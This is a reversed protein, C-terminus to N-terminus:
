LDALYWTETLLVTVSAVQVKVTGLHTQVMPVKRQVLPTTPEGRGFSQRRWLLLRLGCIRRQRSPIVFKSLFQVQPSPFRRSHNRRLEMSKSLLHWRLNGSTQVPSQLELSPTRLLATSICWIWWTPKEFHLVSPAEVIQERTQLQIRPVKKLSQGAVRDIVQFQPLEVTTQEVQVALVQQQLSM